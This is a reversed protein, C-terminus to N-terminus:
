LLAFYWDVIAQGWFMSVYTGLLLFPAFPIQTQRGFKKFALGVLSYVSGFLYGFFLGTLVMPYGLLAGMLAGIRIDGGGLWRGRSGFHLVGFFLVPIAIGIILNVPTYIDNLLVYLIAIFIAPLSIQDPIERFLFDYFTLVIFVFAIFLYFIHQTVDGSGILATTLFFIGAMSLELLPYRFAIPQKCFRCKFKNILYSVVPVLDRVGLQKACLPCFSRGRIISKERIHLRHILVSAFSGLVLGVLIIFVYIM